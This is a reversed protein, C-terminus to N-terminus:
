KRSPWGIVASYGTSRPNLKWPPIETSGSSAANSTAKVM